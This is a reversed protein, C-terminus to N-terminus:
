SQNMFKKNIINSVKYLPTTPKFFRPTGLLFPRARFACIGTFSAPIGGAAEDSPPCAVGAGIMRLSRPNGRGRQQALLCTWEDRVFYCPGDRVMPCAYGGVSVGDGM